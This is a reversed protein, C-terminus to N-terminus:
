LLSVRGSDLLACGLSINLLDLFARPGAVFTETREDQDTERQKDESPPNRRDYERRGAVSPKHKPGLGVNQTEIELARGDVELITCVKQAQVKM